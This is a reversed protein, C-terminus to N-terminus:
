SSSSRVLQVADASYATFNLGRITLHRALLPFPPVPTPDHSFAGYLILLGGRHEAEKLSLCM